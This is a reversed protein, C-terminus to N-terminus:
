LFLFDYLVTQFHDIRNKCYYFLNNKKGKNKQITKYNQNIIINIHDYIKKAHDDFIKEKKIIYLLKQFKSIDINNIIHVFFFLSPSYILSSFIYQLFYFIQQIDQYHLKLIFFNYLHDYIINIIYENKYNLIILYKFIFLKDYIDLYNLYNIINFTLDMIFYKFIHTNIYCSDPKNCQENIHKDKDNYKNIDKIKYNNNTQSTQNKIVSMNPSLINDSTQKFANVNNINHINSEIIFDHLTFDNLTNLYSIYQHNMQEINSTHLDECFIDQNSKMIKQKKQLFYLITLIQYYFLNTAQGKKKIHLKAIIYSLPIKKLIHYYIQVNTIHDNNIIILKFIEHSIINLYFLKIYDINQKATLINQFFTDFTHIFNKKNKYVIDQINNNSQINEFIYKNKIYNNQKFINKLLKIHTYIYIDYISYIHYCEDQIYSHIIDISYSSSQKYNKLDNKEFIDNNYENNISYTINFFEDYSIINEDYMYNLLLLNTYINNNNSFNFLIHNYNHLLIEKIKEHSNKLEIINDNLIVDEKNNLIFFIYEEEKTKNQVNNFTDINYNDNYIVNEGIDNNIQNNLMNKIIHLDSINKNDVQIDNSDNKEYTQYNNNKKLDINKIINHPYINKENEFPTCSSINYTNYSNYTNYTNYINCINYINDNKNNKNYEKSNDEKIEEKNDNIYEDLLMNQIVNNFFKNKWKRNIIVHEEKEGSKNLDNKPMKQEHQISYFYNDYKKFYLNKTILLLILVHKSNLFGSHNFIIDIINTLILQNLLNYKYCLILTAVVENINFKNLHILIKNQIEKIKILNYEEAKIKINKMLIEFNYKEKDKQNENLVFDPIYNFNKKKQKKNKEQSVIKEINNSYLRIVDYKFLSFYSSINKSYFIPANMHYFKKM